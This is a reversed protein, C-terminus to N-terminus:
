SMVIASFLQPLTCPLIVPLSTNLYHNDKHIIINGLILVPATNSSNVTPLFSFYLHPHASLTSSFFWQPTTIHVLSM